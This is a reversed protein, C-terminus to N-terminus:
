LTILAPKYRVARSVNCRGDPSRSAPRMPTASTAQASWTDSTLGLGASPGIFADKGNGPKCNAGAVSLGKDKAEVSIVQNTSGVILACGTLLPSAAIVILAVLRQRVEDLESGSAALRHATAGKM